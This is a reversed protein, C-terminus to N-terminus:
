SELIDSPELWNEEICWTAVCETGLSDRCLEAEVTIDDERALDMRQLREVFGLQSNRARQAIRAGALTKYYKLRQETIRHTLYYVTKMTTKESNESLTNVRQNM